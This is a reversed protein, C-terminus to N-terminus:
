PVADLPISIWLTASVCHLQAADGPRYIQYRGHVTAGDPAVISITCQSQLSGMSYIDFKQDRAETTPPLLIVIHRLGGDNPVIKEVDVMVLTDDLQVAYDSWVTTQKHPKMPERKTPPDSSDHPQKLSRTNLYRSSVSLGRSAVRERIVRLAGVRRLAKFGEQTIQFTVTMAEGDDGAPHAFVPAPGFARGEVITCQLWRSGKALREIDVLCRGHAHRMEM